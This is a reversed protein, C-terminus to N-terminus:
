RFVDAVPLSGPVGQGGDPARLLEEATVPEQKVAM